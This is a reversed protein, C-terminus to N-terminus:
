EYQDVGRKVHGLSGLLSEGLMLRPVAEPSDNFVVIHVADASQLRTEASGVAPYVGDVASIGAGVDVGEAVAHIDHVALLNRFLTVLRRLWASM